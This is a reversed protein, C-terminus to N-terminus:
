PAPTITVVLQYPLASGPVRPSPWTTNGPALAQDHELLSAAPAAGPQSRNASSANGDNAATAALRDLRDLVCM